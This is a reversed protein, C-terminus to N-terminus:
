GEGYPCGAILPLTFPLNSRGRWSPVHGFASFAFSSQILPLILAILIALLPVQQIPPLLRTRVYMTQVAVSITNPAREGDDIFIQGKVIRLVINAFPLEVVKLVQEIMGFQNQCRISDNPRKVDADIMGGSARNRGLAFNVATEVARGIRGVTGNLLERGLDAM